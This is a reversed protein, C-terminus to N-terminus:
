KRTVRVNYSGNPGPSLVEVRVAEDEWSEGSRLPADYLVNCRAIKTRDTGPHSTKVQLPGSGSLVRADFAYVLVGFSCRDVDGGARSRVEAVYATSPGTKALIMKLGGPTEVPSLTQTTSGPEDQCRIQPPDIWGLRYKDWAFFEGGLDVASMISWAGAFHYLQNWDTSGSRGDYYDPLGFDHGTEHELIHRRFFDTGFTAGAYIVTGDAKLASAGGDRNAVFAPSFDIAKANSTSVVYVLQYGRFDVNADALNVAEQMYARHGEHGGSATARTLGYDSANKSMRYWHPDETIHLALRGFSQAAFNRESGPALVDYLSRTTETAAADPFDVFLMVANLTGIGRVGANRLTGAGNTPNGAPDLSPACASGPTTEVTTETTTQVTCAAAARLRKLTARQKRAFAARAQPQKHTRNFAKQAAPMSRIFKNLAAQAKAQETATCDVGTVGGAPAVITAAGFGAGLAILLLVATFLGRATM